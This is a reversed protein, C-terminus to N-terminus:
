PAFGGSFESIQSKLTSFLPWFGSEQCSIIVIWLFKIKIERKVSLYDDLERTVSFNNIVCNVHILNKIELKVSFYNALERTM